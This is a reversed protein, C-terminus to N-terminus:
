QPRHSAAAYLLPSRQYVLPPQQIGDPVFSRNAYYRGSAYHRRGAYRRHSYSHGGGNHAFRLGWEQGGPNYSIHVHDVVAYDTSYGGPWRKLHAYICRPNGRVDV